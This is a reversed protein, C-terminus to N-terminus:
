PRVGREGDRARHEPDIWWRAIGTLDGRADPKPGQLRQNVANIMEVYYLPTMPELEAVRRQFALWLPRASARNPVTELADLLRDIEDDCVGPIQAPHELLGCHYSPREDLQFGKALGMLVADFDREASRARHTLAGLPMAEVRVDVGIAALDARVMEITEAGTTGTLLTFSFPRGDADELVGDGDRDRWGAAHLLARARDADVRRGDGLMADHAWLFPPIPSYAAQGHGHLRQEVIAHKDIALGLAQRVRADEFMPRRSNWFVGVIGQSPYTALRVHEAAKLEAARAPAIRVAYDASGRLLEAVTTDIGSSRRVVVRDLYPRGGLGEPYSENAEFEWADETRSVFRFPGNGVPRETGFPHHVASESTLGELLHRPLPMYSRLALLADLRPPLEIRITFSDVVTAAGFPGGSAPRMVDFGFALDYATTKVGDHWFLDNRLHLILESSDRSMEWAQAFAPMAELSESTHVVPTFLVNRVIDNALLIPVAGPLLNQPDTESLLVATGGFRAAHAHDLADDDVTVAGDCAALLVLVLLGAPGCAPYARTMPSDDHAFDPVVAVGHLNISPSPRM